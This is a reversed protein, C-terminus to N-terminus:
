PRLCDGGSRGRSPFQLQAGASQFSKQPLAIINRWERQFQVQYGWSQLQAALWLAVGENEEPECIYHRPVALREVWRRLEPESISELLSNIEAQPKGALEGSARITLM